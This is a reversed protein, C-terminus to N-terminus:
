LVPYHRCGRYDSSRYGIPYKSIPTHGFSIVWGPEVVIAVHSPIGGTMEGYFALDSPEPAATATGHNWLTGTYGYGNYGLGNPDIAGGAKYDLTVSTSCDIGEEAGPATWSSPMPRKQTYVYRGNNALSWFAQAVIARRIQQEKTLAAEQAELVAARALLRKQQAGIYQDLHSWVLAGAIYGDTDKSWKAKFASVDRVTLSGYAGSLSNVSKPALAKRLAQQLALVDPGRDGAHLTRPM